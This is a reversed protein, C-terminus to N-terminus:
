GSSGMGGGTDGYVDPDEGSSGEVAARGGLGARVLRHREHRHRPKPEGPRELRLRAVRLGIRELPVGLGIRELRVGLEALREIRSRTRELRLEVRQVPRRRGHGLGSSDLEGDSDHGGPGVRVAARAEPATAGPGPMPEAPWCPALHPALALPCVGEPPM